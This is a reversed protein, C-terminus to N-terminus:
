SDPERGATGKCKSDPALRWFGMSTAEREVAHAGVDADDNAIRGHLVLVWSLCGFSAGPRLALRIGQTM